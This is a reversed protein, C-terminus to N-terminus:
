STIELPVPYVETRQELYLFAECAPILPELCAMARARAHVEKMIEYTTVDRQIM